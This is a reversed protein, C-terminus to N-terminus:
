VYIYKKGAFKSEMKMESEKLENEMTDYQKMLETDCDDCLIHGEKYCKKCISYVKCEDCKKLKPNSKICHDCQKCGNLLHESKQQKKLANEMRKFFNM